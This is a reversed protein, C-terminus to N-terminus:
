ASISAVGTALSRNVAAGWEIRVALREYEGALRLTQQQLDYEFHKEAQERFSAALRRYGEARDADGM